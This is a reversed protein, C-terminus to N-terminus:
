KYVRLYDIEMQAPFISDDVEGGLNGGVAINFIFYFPKDFPWNDNTPKEPKPITLTINEPSDIYFQLQDVKWIIGYTHFSEEISELIIFDTSIQTGKIHNNAVSHITQLVSDPKKSVYEMIDIEGCDPWGITKIDEGLMWIAPWIGKGKHDPMKARIEMRGYKFPLISSMRTSTYDGIKQGEGEKKVIIKLTGDSVEVNSGATYNQLEDNGWGTAGTEYGWEELNVEDENFEDSWLIEPISEEQQEQKTSDEEKQKCSVIVLLSVLVLLLKKM